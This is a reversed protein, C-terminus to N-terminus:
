RKEMLCRAVHADDNGFKAFGFGEIFYRAAFGADAGAAMVALPDLYRRFHDPTAKKQGIDRMTRFEMALMDGPRCIRAALGFFRTEEERTVAHLFFRSYVAKGMESRGPPLADFLNGDGVDGQIFRPASLFAKDYDGIREKCLRIATRSKDIGVVAHGAMAFFLSDRGSGCGFDYVLTKGRLEGLVFVAFQSPCAFGAGDQRSYYGDWYGPMPAGAGGPEPPNREDM